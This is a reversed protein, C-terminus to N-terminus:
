NLTVGALNGVISGDLEGGTNLFLVAPYIETLSLEKQDEVAMIKLNWHRSHGDRSEKSYEGVCEPSM